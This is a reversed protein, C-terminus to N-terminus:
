AAPPKDGENETKIELIRDVRFVRDARRKFCYGEVGLYEKGKYNMKGIKNPTIVRKSKQDNSKLYIMNLNAKLKIARKILDIKQDLSLKKESLSYQVQTLFKVVRWDLWIHKKEIPRKLVIGQLSTCRSLAVYVQGYTFAGRGLDVIIKDFTKGQGKHITVAWALRLPYQVFSGIIKSELKRTATNFGMKSVDWKHRKVEVINKDALKVRIASKETSKEIAIIEGVTGNVWRQNEDNNVLMIQSGVKLRLTEQTPLHSKDFDGRIKGNFAFLTAPLDELRKNNIDDSLKNTTTLYIYFENSPPEFLPNLCKNIEQLDKDTVSRNRIANLLNIFKEDTQRYIKELEIFEINCEEFVHADFFYPSKYYTKFIEKEEGQVVPPLQYLDGIFAMQIGGFPADKDKGNLRLFKDVCDLLDARVMSAEDIIIMDIVKYIQNQWFVKKVKDLTITPKFGFFSHITQGKVNIAAVGTPALVVVEKKTHNVFYDLFTSKGTGARGAVLVNKKTNELLNFASKFQENLEINKSSIM